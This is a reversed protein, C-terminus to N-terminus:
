HPLVLLSKAATSARDHRYLWLLPPLMSALAFLDIWVHPWQDAQLSILMDQPAWLVLGAMLWAWIAANRLRDALRVLAWMWVSLAQITAGFLAIWWVQQARAAAPAAHGWFAIEIHRHYGEFVEAGAIWPLLAGAMGHMIAAASLWRVLCQRTNEIVYTHVNKM